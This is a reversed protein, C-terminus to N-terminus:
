CLKYGEVIIRGMQGCGECSEACSGCALGCSIIIAAIIIIFIAFFVIYIWMLVKGFTNKPYKVRVFIIIVLAAILLIISAFIGLTFAIDFIGDNVSSLGTGTIIEVVASLAGAFFMIIVTALGSFIVCLLSILSWINGARKEAPTEMRNNTNQMNNYMNNQNDM